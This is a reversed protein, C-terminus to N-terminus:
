RRLRSGLKRGASATLERVEALTLERWQGPRLSQDTVTGIRVRALRVVPHGVAECM